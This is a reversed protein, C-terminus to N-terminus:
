KIEKVTGVIDTLNVLTLQDKAHSDYFTTGVYKSIMVTQGVVISKMKLYYNFELLTKLASSDGHQAKETLSNVITESAAVLSEDCFSNDPVYIVEALDTRREQTEDPAYLIGGGLKEGIKKTKVLIRDGFPFIQKHVEKAVPMDAMVVPPPVYGGGGKISDTNDPYNTFSKKQYQMGRIGGLKSM